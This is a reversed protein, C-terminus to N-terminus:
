ALTALSNCWDKRKKIINQYFNQLNKRKREEAPLLPLWSCYQIVELTQQVTAETIPVKVEHKTAWYSM